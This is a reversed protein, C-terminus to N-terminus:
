EEVTRPAVIYGNESRAANMLVKERDLMAGSPKDERKVGEVDLPHFLPEVGEVNAELLKDVLSRVSSILRKFEEVEDEDLEIRALWAVHKVDVEGAL